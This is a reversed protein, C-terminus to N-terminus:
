SKRMMEYVETPSEDVCIFSGGMFTVITYYRDWALKYHRNISQINKTELRVYCPSGDYANTLQLMPPYTSVVTPAQLLPEPMYKYPSPYFPDDDEVFFSM